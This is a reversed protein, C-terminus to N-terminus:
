DRGKIAAMIRREMDRHDEKTPLSAVTRVIDERFSQSSARETNVATCLDRDGSEAVEKTADIRSYIHLFVTGIGSASLGLIWLFWQPLGQDM